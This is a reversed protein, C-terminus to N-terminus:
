RKAPPTDRGAIRRLKEQAVWRLDYRLVDRSWRVLMMFEARIVRLEEYTADAVILAVVLLFRLWSGAADRAARAAFRDDQQRM